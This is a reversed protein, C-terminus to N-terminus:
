KSMEKKKRKEKDPSSLILPPLLTYRLLQRQSETMPSETTNMTGKYGM